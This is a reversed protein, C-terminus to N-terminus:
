LPWGYRPVDAQYRRYADGFKRELYREERLVVGVHMLLAWPVFLLATWDSALGVALALLFLGLAQYMPNRTKTYIDGTALALTPKRVDMNTGIREFARYARTVIWGALACLVLAVVIRWLRPLLAGAAGIPILRDLVLGLILTVFAILPPLAIVGPSDHTERADSM